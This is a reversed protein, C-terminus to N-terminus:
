KEDLLGLVSLSSSNAQSSVANRSNGLIGRITDNLLKDAEGKSMSEKTSDSNSTAATTLGDTLRTITVNDSYKNKQSSTEKLSSDSINKPTEQIENQKQSDITKTIAVEPNVSLKM